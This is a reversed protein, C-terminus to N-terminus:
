ESVKESASVKEIEIADVYVNVSRVNLGAMTEVANKVHEQIAYSLERIKTGFKVTVHVDIVAEGEVIEVRVGKAANKKTLIDSLGGGSIGLMSIGEIEQASISSIMSIVDESIRINGSENSVYNDSM